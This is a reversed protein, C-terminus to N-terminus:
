AGGPQLLLAGHNARLPRGTALHFLKVDMRGDKRSKFEASYFFEGGYRLPKVSVFGKGDAARAGTIAARVGSQLLATGEVKRAGEGLREVAEEYRVGYLGRNRDFEQTVSSANLLEQVRAVEQAPLRAMNTQEVEEATSGRAAWVAYQMTNAYSLRKQRGLAFLREASQPLPQAAQGVPTISTGPPLIVRIPTSSTNTLQLDLALRGARGFPNFSGKTGRISVLGDSLASALTIMGGDALAVRGESGGMFRTTEDPPDSMLDTCLAAVQTLQGPQLNFTGGGSFTGGQRGQGGQQGLGGQQFGTGMGTVGQPGGPFGQGGRQMGQGVGPFGQALLERPEGLCEARSRSDYVLIDAPVARAAVVAGAALAVITVTRAWGGAASKKIM